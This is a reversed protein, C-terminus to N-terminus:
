VGAAGSPLPTTPSAPVDQRGFPNAMNWSERQQVPDDGPVAHSMCVSAFGLVVPNTSCEQVFGDPPQLLHVPADGSVLLLRCTGGCRLDTNLLTHYGERGGWFVYNEGGLRATADMAAKVQAAAYAHM